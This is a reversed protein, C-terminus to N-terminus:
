HYHSAFYTPNTLGQKWLVWTSKCANAEITRIWQTHQEAHDSVEFPEVDSPSQWIGGIRDLKFLKMGSPTPLNVFAYQDLPGHDVFSKPGYSGGLEADVTYSYILEPEIGLPNGSQIHELRYTYDDSGNPRDASWLLLNWSTGQLSAEYQIDVSYEFDVHNSSSAVTETINQSELWGNNGDRVKMILEYAIADGDDPQEKWLITAFNSSSNLAVEHSYNFGCSSGHNITDDKSFPVTWQGNIREVLYLNYLSSYCDYGPDFSAETDEWGFTFVINGAQNIALNKSNSTGLSLGAYGDMGSPSLTQDYSSVVNSALGNEIEAYLLYHNDQFEESWFVIGDGFDNMAFRVNGPRSAQPDLTIIQTNAQGQRPQHHIYIDGDNGKWVATIDGERTKQIIANQGTVNDILDSFASSKNWDGDMRSEFFPYRDSSENIRQDRVLFIDKKNTIALNLFNGQVITQPHELMFNLPDAFSLAQPHQWTNTNHNYISVMQLDNSGYTNQISHKWGLVIDGHDNVSNGQFVPSDFTDPLFEDSVTGPHHWQMEDCVLVLDQISQNLKGEARNEFRCCQGEPHSTVQLIYSDVNLREFRFTGDETVPTTSGSNMEKIIVNGTYGVAKGALVIPNSNDSSSPQATQKTDNTSSCATFILLCMWAFSRINFNHQYTKM